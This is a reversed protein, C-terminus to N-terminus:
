RMRWRGTHGARARAGPSSGGFVKRIGVNALDAPTLNAGAGATAIGGGPKPQLGDITPNQVLANVLDTGYYGAAESDTRQVLYNANITGTTGAGVAVAGEAVNDDVLTVTTDEGIEISPVSGPDAAFVDYLLTNRQVTLNSAEGMNIGHLHNGFIVNDEIVWGDYRDAAAQSLEYRLNRAFITHVASGSASHSDFFNKRITMNDLSPVTDSSAVQLMDAHSPAFEKLLQIHNLEILVTQMDTM